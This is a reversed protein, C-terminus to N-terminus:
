TGSLRRLKRAIYKFRQHIPKFCQYGVTHLSCSSYDVIGSRRHLFSDAPVYLIRATYKM